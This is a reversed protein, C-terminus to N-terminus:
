GDKTKNTVYDFFDIIDFKKLALMESSKGESVNYLQKNWYSDLDEM